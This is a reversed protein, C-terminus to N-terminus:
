PNAESRQALVAAGLAGVIQPDAPCPVLRIDLLREIEARVGANKAVGGSMTVEPETGLRRALAAVREAIARAIGASLDRPDAGRQLGHLVETECFISCRSALEVPERAALALSGLEELPVGLTRSMVELFRGTGSACKDNMVFDVIEGKGDVRIVKADQGGIDVITRVAPLLWQAGAGHCSIESLNQHALGQEEVQQRGYGTAVTRRLRERVIGCSSLLEGTVMRASDLPSPKVRISRFGLLRSGQLLVAQATLSGVDIGCYIPTV